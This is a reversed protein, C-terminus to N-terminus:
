SFKSYRHALRPHLLNIYFTPSHLFNPKQVPPMLTLQILIGYLTILKFDRHATVKFLLSTLFIDEICSIINNFFHQHSSSHLCHLHKCSHTTHSKSGSHNSIMIAVVSTIQSIYYCIGGHNTPHVAIM